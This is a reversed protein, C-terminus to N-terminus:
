VKIATASPQRLGRSLLEEFFHNWSDKSESSCASLHLLVKSGDSCVGWACLITQNRTYRRVSEYVGDVFLYVVDLDSWERQIFAEYDEYLLESLRSVGDRSM